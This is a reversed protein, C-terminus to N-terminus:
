AALTIAENIVETEHYPCFVDCVSRGIEEATEEWDQREPDYIMARILGPNKERLDTWRWGWQEMYRMLNYRRSVVQLALGRAGELYYDVSIRQEIRGELPVNLRPKLHRDEFIRAIERDAVNEEYPEAEYRYYLHAISVLAEAFVQIDIGDVPLKIAKKIELGDCDIEFAALREILHAKSVPAEVNM